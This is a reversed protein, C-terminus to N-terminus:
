SERVGKPLYKLWAALHTKPTHGPMQSHLLFLPKHPKRRLELGAEALTKNGKRLNCRRCATVVNEWTSAGGGCRPIVHDITLDKGTFGCYQCTHSDRRLVNKKSFSVGLRQPRRVYRFLRVVTPLRFTATVTRLYFGDSELAEAKGLMVLKLARRGATFQLPEFASNLVLTRPDDM